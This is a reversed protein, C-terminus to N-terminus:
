NTGSMRKGPWSTFNWVFRDWKHALHIRLKIMRFQVIQVQWLSEVGVQSIQLSDTGNIFRHIRAIKHVIISLECEWRGFSGMVWFTPNWCRTFLCGQNWSMSSRRFNPPINHILRAQFAKWLFPLFHLCFCGLNECFKFSM